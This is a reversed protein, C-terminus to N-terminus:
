SPQHTWGLVIAIQRRYETDIQRPARRVYKEAESGSGQKRSFELLQEVSPVEGDTDNWKPPLDTWVVGTLATQEAWEGIVDSCRGKTDEASWIGIRHDKTRERRALARRAENVNKCDLAIWLTPVLPRGPVIVLTVRDDSSHRAFEVPLNPGDNNWTGLVPLGGPKSPLSGWGVCAITM